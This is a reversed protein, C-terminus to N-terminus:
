RRCSCSANVGDADAAARPAQSVEHQSLRVEHWGSYFWAGLLAALLLALVGAASLARPVRGAAMLARAEM